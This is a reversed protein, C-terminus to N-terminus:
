PKVIDASIIGSALLGIIYTLSIAMWLLLGAAGLMIPKGWLKHHYDDGYREKVAKVQKWGSTVIWLIYVILYSGFFYFESFESEPLWPEAFLYGGMYVFGLFVWLGCTSTEDAEGMDSWNTRQLFAGFIPTFLFSWIITWLPNWLAIQPRSSENM